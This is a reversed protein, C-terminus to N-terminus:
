GHKIKYEIYDHASGIKDAARAVKSQVWEPLDDEDRIMDYLSQARRFLYYLQKKTSRGESDSSKTHGYSLNRGHSHDSSPPMDGAHSMDGLIGAIDRDSFIADDQLVSKLEELIIRDLDKRSIKM